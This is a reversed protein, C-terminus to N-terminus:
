TKVRSCPATIFFTAGGQDNDYVKLEGDFEAVIAKSISLGLGTGKGPDKTTYFPDFIKMKLDESVGCANDGIEIFVQDFRCGTKVWLKRNSPRHEELAQRANVVLNLIIQELNNYNGRLTPLHDELVKDIQIGHTEFQKGIMSFVNAIADNPNINECRDRDERSFNRINRIIRSMRMVQKSIIEYGEFLENDGINLGRKRAFLIDDASVRITNLPQNLEHAIGAAMVGLAALRDEHQMKLDNDRVKRALLKQQTIDDIIFHIARKNEYGISRAYSRFYRWKTGKRGAKFEFPVPNKMDSCPNHFFSRVETEDLAIWNLFDAISINKETVGIMDEFRKNYYLIRDKTFLVMGVNAFDIITRYMMESRRLRRAMERERTVNEFINITGFPQNCIDYLIATRSIDFVDKDSINLVTEAEGSATLNGMLSHTKTEWGLINEATKNWKDPIGYNNYIIVPHPIFDILADFQKVAQIKQAWLAFFSGVASGLEITSEDILTDKFGSFSLIFIPKEQVTIPILLTKKEPQQSSSSTNHILNPRNTTLVHILDIPKLVSITDLHTKQCGGMSSAWIKFEYNKKDIYEKKILRTDDAGIILGAEKLALSINDTSTELTALLKCCRGLKKIHFSNIDIM